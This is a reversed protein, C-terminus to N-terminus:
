KIVLDESSDNGTVILDISGSGGSITKKAYPAEITLTKSTDGDLTIGSVRERDVNFHIFRIVDSVEDGSAIQYVWESEKSDKFDACESTSATVSKASLVNGDGDKRTLTGSSEFVINRGNTCVAGLSLTLTKDNPASEIVLFDELFNIKSTKYDDRLVEQEAQKVTDEILGKAEKTILSDSLGRFGVIGAVSVIAIISVVVLLEM